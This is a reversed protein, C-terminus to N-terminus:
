FRFDKTESLQILITPALVIRNNCMQTDDCIFIDGVHYCVHNLKVRLLSVRRFLVQIEPLAFHKRMVEVIKQM